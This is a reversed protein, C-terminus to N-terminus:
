IHQHNTTTFAAGAWNPSRADSNISKIIQLLTTYVDRTYVGPKQGFKRLKNNKLSNGTLVNVNLKEAVDLLTSTKDRTM